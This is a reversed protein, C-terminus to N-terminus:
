FLKIQSTSKKHNIPKDPANIRDEHKKKFYAVQKPDKLDRDLVGLM